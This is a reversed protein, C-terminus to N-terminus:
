AEEEEWLCGAGYNCALYVGYIRICQILNFNVYSM